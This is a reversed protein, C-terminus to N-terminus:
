IGRLNDVILQRVFHLVIILIVPSVDIGGISPIIRRIPRLAPETIRYLFSMALYVARHRVNIINLSSLWSILASAILLYIYIQVVTDILTALANM